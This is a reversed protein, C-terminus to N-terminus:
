NSLLSRVAELIEGASQFRDDAEKAMCREVIAALPEPVDSRITRFNPAPTHVHHYPINGESFPLSGTLLEFSTVGLSYIDTRHDM